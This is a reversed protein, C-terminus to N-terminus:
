GRSSTTPVSAMLGLLVELAREEAFAPSEAPDVYVDPEVGKGDIM